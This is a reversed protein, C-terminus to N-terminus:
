TGLWSHRWKCTLAAAEQYEHGKCNKYHLQWNDVHMGVCGNLLLLLCLTVAKMIM